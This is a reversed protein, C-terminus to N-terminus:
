ASRHSAAARVSAPDVKRSCARLIQASNSAARSVIWGFPFRPPRNLIVTGTDNPVVCKAGTSPSSM